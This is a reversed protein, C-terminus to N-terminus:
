IAKFEKDLENIFEEFFLKKFSAFYDLGSKVVELQYGNFYFEAIKYKCYNTSYAFLCIAPGSEEFKLTGWETEIKLEFQPGDKPVYQWQCCTACVTKNIAKMISMSLM